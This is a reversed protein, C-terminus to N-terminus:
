HLLDFSFYDGVAGRMEDLTLHKQRPPSLSSQNSECRLSRVHGNQGADLRFETVYYVQSPGSGRGFLGLMGVTPSVPMGPFDQIRQEVQTVRFREPSVPQAAESVTSLEFICYPETDQVANSAVTHGFQLRVTASDPPITLAHQLGIHMGSPYVYYPANPDRPAASQCGTLVVLAFPAIWRKM